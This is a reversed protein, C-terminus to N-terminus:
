LLLNHTRVREDSPKAPQAQYQAPGDKVPYAALTKIREHGKPTLSWVAPLSRTVKQAQTTGDLLTVRTEVTESRRHIQLADGLRMIVRKLTRASRGSQHLRQLHELTLEGLYAYSLLMEADTVMGDPPDHDSRSIAEFADAM